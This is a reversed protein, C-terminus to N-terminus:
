RSGQQCTGQIHKSSVLGCIRSSKTVKSISSKKHRMSFLTSFGLVFFLKMAVICCIGRIHSIIHTYQSYKHIM